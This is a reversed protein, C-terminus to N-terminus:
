TSKMGLPPRDANRMPCRGFHDLIKARSQSVASDEDADSRESGIGRGCYPCYATASYGAPSKSVTLRYEIGGYAFVKSVVSKGAALETANPM